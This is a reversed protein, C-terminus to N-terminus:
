MTEDIVMGVSYDSTTGKLKNRLIGPIGVPRSQGKPLIACKGKRFTNKDDKEYGNCIEMFSNIVDPSVREAVLVWKKTSTGSGTIDINTYLPLNISSLNSTKNGTANYHSISIDNEITRPKNEIYPGRWLNSINKNDCYNENAYRVDYLSSTRVPFCGTDSKFQGIAMSIQNMEGMLEGAKTKSGDYNMISLSIIVVTIMLVVIIDMIEVFGKQKIKFKNM